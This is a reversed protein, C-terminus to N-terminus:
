TLKPIQLQIIIDICQVQCVLVTRFLYLNFIYSTQRQLKLQLAIFMKEIKELKPKGYVKREISTCIFKLEPIKFVSEGDKSLFFARVFTGNVIPIVTTTHEIGDPKFFYSPSMNNAKVEIQIIQNPNNKLSNGTFNLIGFYGPPMNNLITSVYASNTNNIGQPCSITQDDLNVECKRKVVDYISYKVPFIIPDRFVEELFLDEAKLALLFSIM